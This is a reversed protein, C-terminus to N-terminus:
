FGAHIVDNNLIDIWQDVEVLFREASQDTGWKKLNYSVERLDEILRVAVEKAFIDGTPQFQCITAVSSIFDMNSAILVADLKHNNTKDSNEKVKSMFFQYNKLQTLLYKKQIIVDDATKFVGEDATKPKKHDKHAAIYANKAHNIKKLSANVAINWANLADRWKPDTTDAPMQKLLLGRVETVLKNNLFNNVEEASENFLVEDIEAEASKLMVAVPGSFASLSEQTSLTSHLIEVNPRVLAWQQRMKAFKRKAQELKRSLTTIETDPMYDALFGFLSTISRDQNRIQLELKKILYYQYRIQRSATKLNETYDSISENVDRWPRIEDSKSKINTNISSINTRNGRFIKFFSSINDLIRYMLYDLKKNPSEAAIQLASFKIKGINPTKSFSGEGTKLDNHFLNEYNSQSRLTRRNVDM